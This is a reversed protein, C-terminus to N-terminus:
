HHEFQGCYSKMFAKGDLQNNSLITMGGGVWLAQAGTAAFVAAATSFAWLARMAAM